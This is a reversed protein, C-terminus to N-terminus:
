KFLRLYEGYGQTELEEKPIFKLAASNICYRLGGLAAPGDTFVHGLHSDAKSSRVEIRNMGHSNDEKEIIQQQNIPKSFSPWGCGSDFKDLSTFLPEGSVIDVYIGQRHNANYQNDFPPETGNQQTVHYQMPTLAAIAKDKMSKNM